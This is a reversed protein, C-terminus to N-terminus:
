PPVNRTMTMNPRPRTFLTHTWRLANGSYTGAKVLGCDKPKGHRGDQTLYGRTNPSGLAQHAQTERLWCISEVSSCGRKRENEDDTAENRCMSPQMRRAGPPM